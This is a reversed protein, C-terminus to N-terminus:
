IGRSKGKLLAQIRSLIANYATIIDEDQVRDALFIHIDGEQTNSLTKYFRLQDVQCWRLRRGQDTSKGAGGPLFAQRKHTYQWAVKVSVSLHDSDEEWRVMLM